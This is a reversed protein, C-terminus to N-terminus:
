FEAGRLLTGDGGLVILLECGDVASPSTDTVTEVADPLPLDAAEAASVRVGLGNRLLGQVVLEASRIAAPRGTHALLFVTRATETTM